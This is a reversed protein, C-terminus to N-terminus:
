RPMERLIKGLRRPKAGDGLRTSHKAANRVSSRQVRFFELLFRSMARSLASLAMLGFVGDRSGYRTLDTTCEDSTSAAKREDPSARGSRSTTERLPRGLLM